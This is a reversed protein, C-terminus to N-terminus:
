LVVARRAVANVRVPMPSSGSSTMIHHSRLGVAYDRVLRQLPKKAQLNLLLMPIPRLVMTSALPPLPQGVAFLNPVDIATSQRLPTLSSSGLLIRVQLM